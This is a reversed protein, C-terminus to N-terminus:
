HMWWNKKSPRNLKKQIKGRSLITNKWKEESYGQFMYVDFSLYVNSIMHAISKSSRPSIDSIIITFTSPNVGRCTGLNSRLFISFCSKIAHSFESSALCVKLDLLDIACIIEFTYREKSTYEKTLVILVVRSAEMNEIISDVHPTGPLGDRPSSFHFFV